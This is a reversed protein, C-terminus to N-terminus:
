RRWVKQGFGIHGSNRRHMLSRLSNSPFRRNQPPPDGPHDPQQQWSKPSSLPRAHPDRFMALNKRMKLSIDLM